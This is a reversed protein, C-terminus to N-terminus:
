GRADEYPSTTPGHEPNESLNNRFADELALRLDGSIGAKLEKDGTLPMVINDALKLALAKVFKSSFLSTDKLDETYKCIAQQINCAISYENTSRSRILEWGSKQSELWTRFQTGAYGSNEMFGLPSHINYVKHVFLVNAPYKYIFAWPFVANHDVLTPNAATAAAWDPFDAVGTAEGILNLKFVRRAFTWDCEELIERRSPDYWLKCKRALENLDGLSTISKQNILSLALNCIDVDSLPQPM